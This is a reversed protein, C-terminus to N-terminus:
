FFTSRERECVCVSINMCLYMYICVYIGMIKFSESSFAVFRQFDAKMEGDGGAALQEKGM